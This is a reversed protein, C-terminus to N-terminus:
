VNLRVLQDNYSGGLGSERTQESNKSNTSDKTGSTRSQPWASVSTGFLRKLVPRMTPLCANIVGLTPELITYIAGATVTYTMDDLHWNQLWVVRLLSLVCILAGLSFMGVISLKKPLSMQLGFFMPMPLGVIFADIVLNTIGSALYSSSEGHCHGGPISKDWVYQVPKCMVFTQLLVSIFYAMSLAMLGYCLYGFRKSPFITTYLSLISFKVSTNAGAWLLQAPVFLKLHLVLLQPNTALIERLHLGVGASFSAILFVLVTGLAFITAVIAMYDNFVLPLKLIRRSWLRCGLAVFSLIITILGTVVVKVAGLSLAM